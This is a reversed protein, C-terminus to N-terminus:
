CITAPLLWLCYAWNRCMFSWYSVQGFRISRCRPFMSLFHRQWTTDNPVDYWNKELWCMNAYKNVYKGTCYVYRVLIVSQFIFNFFLLTFFLCIQGTIPVFFFLYIVFYYIFMDSWNDPSFLLGSLQMASWLYLSFLM